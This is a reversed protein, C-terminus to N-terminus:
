RSMLSLFVLCFVEKETTPHHGIDSSSLRVRQLFEEVKVKSAGSSRMLIEQGLEWMGKLTVGQRECRLLISFARQARPIDRRLLSTHLITTLNQIRQTNINRQRTSSIVNSPDKVLTQISSSAARPNVPTFTTKNSSM